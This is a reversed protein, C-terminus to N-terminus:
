NKEIIMLRKYDNGEMKLINGEIINGIVYKKKMYATVLLSGIGKLYKLLNTM